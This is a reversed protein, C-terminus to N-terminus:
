GFLGALWVVRGPPIRSAILDARGRTPCLAHQVLSDFNQLNRVGEMGWHSRANRRAAGLTHNKNGGGQVMENKQADSFHDRFCCALLDSKSALILGLPHGFPVLIPGFHDGFRFFFPYPTGRSM